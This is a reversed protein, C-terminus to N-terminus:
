SNAPIWTQLEQEFEEENISFVGSKLEYELLHRVVYGRYWDQLHWPTPLRFSTSYTDYKWYGYIREDDIQLFLSQDITVMRRQDDWNVQAGLVEAIFRLPVYTRENIIMPATDIEDTVLNAKVKKSGIQLSINLIYLKDTSIKITETNPYWNVTAGMAEVVGRLPVLTRGNKIIPPQDLIVKEGNLCISIDNEAFAKGDGYFVFLLLVSFMTLIMFLKKM